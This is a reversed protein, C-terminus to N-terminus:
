TRLFKSWPGWAHLTVRFRIQNAKFGRCIEIPEFRSKYIRLKKLHAWTWTWPWTRHVLSEPGSIWRKKKKNSGGNSDYWPIWRKFFFSFFFSNSISSPHWSSGLFHVWFSSKVIVPSWKRLIDSWIFFCINWSTGGFFFFSATWVTDVGPLCEDFCPVLHFWVHKTFEWGGGFFINVISMTDFCRTSMGWFISPQWYDREM